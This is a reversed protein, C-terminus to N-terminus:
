MFKHCESTWFLARFLSFVLLIRMFKLIKTTGHESICTYITRAIGTVGKEIATREAEIGRQVARQMQLRKARVELLYKGLDVVAKSGAAQLASETVRDEISKVMQLTQAAAENGANFRNEEKGGSAGLHRQDNYGTIPIGNAQDQKLMARRMVSDPDMAQQGVPGTLTPPPTGPTMAYDITAEIINLKRDIRGIVPIAGVNRRWWTGGEPKKWWSEEMGSPDVASVPGNGVYRYLNVDGAGFGLPDVSIFRGLDVDLWRARNYVRSTTPDVYLGQHRYHWAYTDTSATFDDALVTSRGFPDYAFRQVVEGDTNTISTVNGNADQQVYLREDLTGNADTDRDRLILIDSGVPSWVYRV